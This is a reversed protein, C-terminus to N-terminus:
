VCGRNVGQQTREYNRGMRDPNDGALVCIIGPKNIRNTGQLRVNIIRYKCGPICVCAENNRFKVDTECVKMVCVQLVIVSYRDKSLIM